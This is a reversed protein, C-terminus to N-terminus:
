RDDTAITVLGRRERIDPRPNSDKPSAWAFMVGLQYPTGPSVTSLVGYDNQWATVSQFDPLNGM